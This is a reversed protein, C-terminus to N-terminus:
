SQENLIFFCFCAFLVLVMAFIIIFITMKNELRTERLVCSATVRVPFSKWAVISGAPPMIAVGDGVRGM